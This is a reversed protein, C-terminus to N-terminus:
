RRRLSEDGGRSRLVRHGAAQRRIRRALQGWELTAPSPPQVPVRAAGVKEAVYVVPMTWDVTAQPDTGSQTLAARRGHASAQAVAGDSLLSEYFRRAFLRCAQDTIAGSMGVVLPIRAGLEQALPMAVQGVDSLSAAATYCASLVVISPLTGDCELIDFLTESFADVTSGAGQDSVLTLSGRRTQDDVQGHCILHVVQPKFTRVATRIREPTARLLLHTRLHIGRQADKLNNLLAFCEAAPRIVDRHLEAGVAVLM